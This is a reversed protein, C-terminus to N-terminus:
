RGYRRPSGGGVFMLGFLVAIGGVIVPTSFFDFDCTNTDSNLTQFLSCTPVNTPDGPGAVGPGSVTPNAQTATPTQCLSSNLGLTCDTLQKGITSPSWKCLSETIDDVWYPLWSPRNADYCYYGPAEGLGRNQPSPPPGVFRARAGWPLTQGPWNPAALIM